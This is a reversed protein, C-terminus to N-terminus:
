QSNIFNINLAVRREVNTPSSSAHFLKGNFILLRNEKPKIKNKLTFTLNDTNQYYSEESSIEPDYKENFIYTEGDNDNLYYLAVIHNHDSLFDIHPHHRESIDTKLYMGYRMRILHEPNIGDILKLNLFIPLMLDFYESPGNDQDDYVLNSFGSYNKSNLDSEHTVDELYFWPFKQSFVLNRINEFIPYPLYDDIIIIDSM